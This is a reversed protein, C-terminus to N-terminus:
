NPSRRVPIQPWLGGRVALMSVGVLFIITWTMTDRKM